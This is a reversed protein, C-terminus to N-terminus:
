HTSTHVIAGGAMRRPLSNCIGTLGFLDTSQQLALFLHRRPAVPIALPDLGAVALLRQGPLAPQVFLLLLLILIGWGRRATRHAVKGHRAAITRGPWEPAAM